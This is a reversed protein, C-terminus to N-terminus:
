KSFQISKFWEYWKFSKSFEDVSTEEELFKNWIKLREETDLKRGLQRARTTNLYTIRIHCAKCLSKVRNPTYTIHHSELVACSTVKCGCKACSYVPQIPKELPKGFVKLVAENMIDKLTYEM